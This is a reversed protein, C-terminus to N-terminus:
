TLAEKSYLYLTCKNTKKEKKREIKLIKDRNFQSIIFFFYNYKRKM